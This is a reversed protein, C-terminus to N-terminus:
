SHATYVLRAHGKMKDIDLGALLWRLEDVSLAIAVDSRRPWLFRDKDLRKIWMAFGTDDWYLLRIRDRSRNTFAFLEGSLVRSGVAETAVSALYELGRRFDLPTTCLHLKPFESLAKM